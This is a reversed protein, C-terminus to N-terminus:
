NEANKKIHEELKKDIIKQWQEEDIKGGLNGHAEKYKFIEKVMNKKDSEVLNDWNRLIETVIHDVIGTKRGLAYRFASYLVDTTTTIVKEQHPIMIKKM